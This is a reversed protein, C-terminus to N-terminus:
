QDVIGNQDYRKGGDGFLADGGAGVTLLWRRWARGDFADAGSNGYLWGRGALAGM